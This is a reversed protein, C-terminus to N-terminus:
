TRRPKPSAAVVVFDSDLSGSEILGDEIDFLMRLIRMSEPDEERFNGAV